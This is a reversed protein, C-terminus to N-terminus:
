DGCNDLWRRNGSDRSAEFKRGNFGAGKRADSGEYGMLLVVYIWYPDGPLACKLFAEATFEVITPAM